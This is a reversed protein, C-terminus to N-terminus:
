PHNPERRLSAYLLPKGTPKAGEGHPEVTVFISDLQALQQPDNVRLAWRRNTESDLYLVGLSVPKKDNGGSRGWVQFTSAQKVGPQRDLDYAYFVLSKAKTYFIRGFPKRSQGSSDVDTIDAIYLNRAGILDRIDRDSALYQEDTNVRKERDDLAANLGTVKEELSALHVLDQRHQSRLNNLDDQVIQYLAQAERLRAATADRDQTVAALQEDSQSKIIAAASNLTQIREQANTAARRLREIEARSSVVQEELV